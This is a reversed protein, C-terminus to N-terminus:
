NTVHSHIKLICELASDLSEADNGLYGVIDGGIVKKQGVITDLAQFLQRLTMKGTDYGSNFQYPVLVDLDVSIYVNDPFGILESRLRENLEGLHTFPITPTEIRQDCGILLGAQANTRSLLHEVFGGMCIYPSNKDGFDSHRDIHIYGFPEEINACLGYTLHHYNGNGGIVVPRKKKRIRWGLARKVSDPNVIGGSVIGQPIETTVRNEVGMRNLSDQFERTSPEPLQLIEIM